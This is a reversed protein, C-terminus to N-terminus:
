IIYYLKVRLFNDDTFAIANSSEFTTCRWHYRREQKKDGYEGYEIVQTNM